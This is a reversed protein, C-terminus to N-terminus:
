VSGPEVVLKGIARREEVARMAEVARDLSYRRSVRPRIRGDSLMATLEENMAAMSEPEKVSFPAINFARIESGKLLPLNLAISPIKGSAFGVVVFRGGWGTARYASEAYDGGVPDIVVDAGKGATLEKIKDKLSESAYNIGAEAGEELCAAVKEDSSAAAIVRAGMQKALQVAAMGVGGAAGLVVVTEGARVEGAFRLAGYATAYTVYFGAAAAFEVGDPLARLGNADVAIKEAFGGVFSMAFVRDGVAVGDVQDGIASVEGAFESGPIFPLPASVQYRDRTLLCDTFNVAAARIDVVVQGPGPSPDAVEEVVVAEPGAYEKCVVARM